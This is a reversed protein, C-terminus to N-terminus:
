VWIESAQRSRIWFKRLSGATCLYQRGQDTIIILSQINGSRLRTYLSQMMGHELQQLEDLWRLPDNAQRAWRLKEYVILANNQCSFARLDDNVSKFQSNTALCLSRLLDGEGICCDYECSRLLPYPGIGWFWLSNVPPHGQEKRLHNIDLSALVMQIENFLTHWRRSDKGQPLLTNVPKMLADHLSVCLLDPADDIFQMYWRMANPTHLIVGYDELLPQIACCIREVERPQLNLQAPDQLILSHTDPYLYVPDARMWCGEKGNLGDQIATLSALPIEGSQTLKGGFQAFLWNEYLVEPVQQMSACSLIRTIADLQLRNYDEAGIERFAPFLTPINLTINMSM